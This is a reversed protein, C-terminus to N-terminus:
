YTLNTFLDFENKGYEVIDFKQCMLIHMPIGEDKLKVNEDIIKDIPEIVQIGVKYFDSFNSLTKIRNSKGLNPMDLLVKNSHHKLRYDLVGEAQVEIISNHEKSNNALSDVIENISIVELENFENTIKDVLQSKKSCPIGVMMVVLKEESALKEKLTKLIEDASM